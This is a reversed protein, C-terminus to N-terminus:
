SSAALEMLHLFCARYESSLRLWVDHLRDAETPPMEASMGLRATIATMQTEVLQAVLEELEYRSAAPGLLEDDLEPGIDRYGQFIDTATGPPWGLVADIKVGVPATLRTRAADELERWTSRAVRAGLAGSREVAEVVTLGLKGRRERMARALSERSMEPNMKLM